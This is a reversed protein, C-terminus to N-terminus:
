QHCAWHSAEEIRLKPEFMHFSDNKSHRLLDLLYVDVGHYKFICLLFLQTHLDSRTGPSLEQGSSLLPTYEYTYLINQGNSRGKRFHNSIGNTGIVGLGIGWTLFVKKLPFRYCVVMLVQHLTM